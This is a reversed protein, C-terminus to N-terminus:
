LRSLDDDLECRNFVKTRGGHSRMRGSAALKEFTGEPLKSYIVAEAKTM